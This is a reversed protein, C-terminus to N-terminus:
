VSVTSIDPTLYRVLKIHTSNRNWSSADRQKSVSLDQSVVFCHTHPYCYIYIYIYIYIHNPMLYGVRMSIGNLM